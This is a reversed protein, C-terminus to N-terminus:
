LLSDFHKLTYM